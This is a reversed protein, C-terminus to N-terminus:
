YARTALVPLVRMVKFLRKLRTPQQLVRYIGELGLQQWLKPARKVEGSILDIAGGFCFLGTVLGDLAPAMQSAFHHEKQAGLGLVVYHPGFSRVAALADAQTAAESPTGMEYHAPAFGAVDLGPWRRRLNQVAGANARASSGLLLLRQGNRACHAAIDYILDSGSMKALAQHPYKRRLGWWLWQGDVSVRLRPSKLLHRLAPSSPLSLSIEANLTVYAWCQPGAAPPFHQTETVTFEGYRM